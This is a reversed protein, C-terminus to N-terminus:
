LQSQFGLGFGDLIDASLGLEPQAFAVASEHCPPFMGILDHHGNGPLQHPEHPGHGCLNRCCRLDLRGLVM